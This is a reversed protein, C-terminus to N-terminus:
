SAYSDLWAQFMLVTWLRESLDRRGGLHERWCRQVVAPELYGEAELRGPALLEEAWPRLPGRLWSGIPLGFGAKPRDTLEEPVHRGLVERLIWKGTRGKVKLSVPLQWALEVVRHDLLPVRSELSVAMSARDLKVLIDDPLYSVLDLYMLESAVDEVGRPVGAPQEEDVDRLGRVLTSPEQWTSTLIRYLQASDGAPLVSALKQVEIGPIRLRASRPLLGGLTEFLRDWSSPSPAALLAAAGRRLPEPCRRTARLIPGGWAHRNYGGFLEDGGDGSLSVTVQERALRSVLYTPIQSTDAFPDDYVRPLEPIVRRADGATLRLETHDTGLHRAVAAAHESEDYTADEFAITFTRLSGGSRAQALAAVTSSDLGGSLFVGVPVDAQLRLAVADSLLAELEDALEAPPESRPSAAGRAAVDFASWYPTPLAQRRGSQGGQLTLVSGPRLQRVGEYITSPAPVCSLRLYSALARRDVAPSFGPVARLAKLESGFALAHGIWTFYLPKEGLRDRALHLAREARDWLAFAFMGNLEQLTRELGWHDVAELLVETDSGGRFRAGEKELRARLSKFNYIEGNYAVVFRGSASLMPQHGEPSLDIVALRRSGLAIGADADVWAGHDDPGRHALQEAM